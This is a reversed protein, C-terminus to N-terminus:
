LTKGQESWLLMFDRHSPVNQRFRARDEESEFQMQQEVLMEHAKQLLSLAREQDVHRLIKFAICYVEIPEDLQLVNNEEIFTLVREILHQAEVHNGLEHHIIAQYAVIMESQATPQGGSFELWIKLADELHSLAHTFQNLHYQTRGLLMLVAGREEPYEMTKVQEYAQTLYREAASYNEQYIAIVGLGLNARADDLKDSTREGLTIAEQIYKHAAELDGKARSVDILNNLILGQTQVNGQEIAIALAAQYKETSQVLKGQTRLLLGMNLLVDAQGVSNGIQDFVEVAQGYYDLAREINSQFYAINGLNLLTTAIRSREGHARARELLRVFIEQAPELQGGRGYITGVNNLAQMVREINQLHEAKSVAIEGMEQAAQLKGTQALAQSLMLYSDAEMQVDRVVAATVWALPLMYFYMGRQKAYTTQQFLNLAAKADDSLRERMDNDADTLKVLIHSRTHEWFEQGSSVSNVADYGSFGRLLAVVNEFHNQVAEPSSHNSDADTLLHAQYRAQSQDFRNDRRLLARLYARVLSHLSFVLESGIYYSTLLSQGELEELDSITDLDDEDGWLNQIDGLRIPQNAPFVGVSCFRKQLDPRLEEYSVSLSLSLNNNQDDKALRSHLDQFPNDTESRRKLRDVFSQLYHVDKGSLRAAALSLALTHNQLLKVIDKLAPTDSPIHTGIRKQLLTVGQEESMVEVLQRQDGLMRALDESRTTIMLCTHQGVSRFSEVVSPSWVDDLVILVSRNALVQSLHVKASDLDTYDDVQDGFAAGISNMRLAINPNKGINLWFIGDSYTRRTRCDQALAAALTSKGAGGMGHLTVIQQTVSIKQPNALYSRIYEIGAEIEQTRNIYWTPLAPVGYLHALPQVPQRLLRQLESLSTAYSADNRFDPAHYQSLETPISQYEGLRLLPIVPTCTRLAHQWEAQVYESEICKPGVVLVLRDSENIAKEIEKLFTLGRNPMSVRDWWVEFEDKLDEYLRKVFSEDDARAYSLFIRTKRRAAELSPTEGLSVPGYFNQVGFNANGSTVDGEVNVDNHDSM